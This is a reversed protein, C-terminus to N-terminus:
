AKSQLNYSMIFSFPFTWWNCKDSSLVLIVYLYLYGWSSYIIYRSHSYNFIFSIILILFMLIFSLDEQLIISSLYFIRWSPLHPPYTSQILNYCVYSLRKVSLSAKLFYICFVNPIPPHPDCPFCYFHKFISLIAKFVNQHTASFM